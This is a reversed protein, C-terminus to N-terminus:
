VFYPKAKKGSIISFINLNERIIDIHLASPKISKEGIVGRQKKRTPPDGKKPILL